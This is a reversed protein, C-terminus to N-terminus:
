PQIMTATPITTVHTPNPAIVDSVTNRCGIASAIPQDRVPTDVAASTLQSQMPTPANTHPSETLSALLALSPVHLREGAV